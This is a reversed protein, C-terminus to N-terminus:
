TRVAAPPAPSVGGPKTTMLRYLETDRPFRNVFPVLASGYRLLGCGAEPEPQALLKDRLTVLTPPEAGARYDEYVLSTCRDVISKEQPGLGGRDLQEFLSMVFESKDIVPNEGEGYGEVM